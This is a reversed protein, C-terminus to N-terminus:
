ISMALKLGEAMTKPPTWGLLNKSKSIDIQLNGYLGRIENGKNLLTAGAYLLWRPVTILNSTYGGALAMSRLLGTTSTDDGDSVLFIQDAAEPHTICLQIFDVLNELGVLSRQNDIGALPLPWEERVANKLLGFNGPASPGYVLPPRIIVVELGSDAGLRLLGQEARLKSFTYANYPNPEDCPTFSQGIKTESGNVGISSIFLFRKIGYKIAQRALNLTGDVNVSQYIAHQNATMRNRIHAMGACHIVVDIGKLIYSWDAVSSLGDINRVLIRKDTNIERCRSSISVLYEQSLAKYAVAKGIYGNGGTVLLNTAM